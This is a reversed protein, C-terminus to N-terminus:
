SELTYAPFRLLNAPYVAELRVARCASFVQLLVRLLCDFIILLGLFCFDLLKLIRGSLCAVCANSRLLLRSDDLLLLLLLLLVDLPIAPPRRCKPWVEGGTWEGVLMLHGAANAAHGSSGHNAQIESRKPPTSSHCRATVFCGQGRLALGARGSMWVHLTKKGGQPGSDKGANSAKPVRSMPNMETVRPPINCVRRRSPPAFCHLSFFSVAQVEIRRHVTLGTAVQYRVGGRPLM